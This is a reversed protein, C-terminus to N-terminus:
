DDSLALYLAVPALVVCAAVVLVLPLRQQLTEAVVTTVDSAPAFRLAVGTLWGAATALSRWTYGIVALSFGLAVAATIGHLWTMPRTAAHAAELRARVASRWWVQGASPVRVDHRARDHEERLLSSVAAVDGCVACGDAHRRLEEDCRDPWAGTLVASVVQEERPCETTV